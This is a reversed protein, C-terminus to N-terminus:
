SKVTLPIEMGFIPNKTEMDMQIVTIIESSTLFEAFEGLLDVGFPLTKGEFKFMLDGKEPYYEFSLLEDDFERDHLITVTNDEQNLYIDAIMIDLITKSERVM